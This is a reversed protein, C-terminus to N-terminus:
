LSHIKWYMAVQDDWEVTGMQLVLMTPEFEYIPRPAVLARQPINNESGQRHNELVADGAQKHKIYTYLMSHSRPGIFARAIQKDM